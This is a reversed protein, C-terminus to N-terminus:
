KRANGSERNINLLALFRPGEFQVYAYWAPYSWYYIITSNSDDREEKGRGEGGGEGEEATSRTNRQVYFLLLTPLFVPEIIEERILSRVRVISLNKVFRM